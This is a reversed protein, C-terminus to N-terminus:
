VLQKAAIKEKIVMALRKIGQDIETETPYSFNLRMTNQGKGDCHFVSGIVYAVDKEIAEYFMEDANIAEPLKVWLFLGGEPRTWEVEEPMYTNLATLMADRKRKYTAKIVELHNQIHKNTLFEAAILQNFTSTCLDISQKITSFEKIIDEQAVMYGLRLGPAFVKSFTFISLVNSGGDIKYLMDPSEGEFRVERYPTDEVILLNHKQALEVLQRRREYSMTVGSPNQFDPVVYIFKLLQEKQYLIEQIKAEVDDILVGNNDSQVGIINAGQSQFVQLGGLYSPLEVLINDSVDLFARGLLSLGQQSATTVMVNSPKVSLGETENIHNALAERFQPLGETPGYQLAEKSNTKLVNCTIEEIIESPFITPDPLGGAFSILGPKNTLKLLERIISSKTRKSVQSLNKSLDFM